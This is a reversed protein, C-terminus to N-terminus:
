GLAEALGEGLAEIARALRNRRGQPWSGAGLLAAEGPSWPIEGAVPAGAARAVARAGMEGANPGHALALLCAARAGSASHAEVVRRARRAAAVHPGCAVLVADVGGAVARAPRGLGPGADIVTRGADGAAARTAEVLRRLAAADWADAAGPAPPAGLVRLGSPGEQAAHGVHRAGLEAAVGALDALSRVAALGWADARDARDLDLELLWAPAGARAWSLALAGALLSAGCGGGAGVVLLASARRPVSADGTM